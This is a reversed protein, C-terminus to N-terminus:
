EDDGLDEDGDVQLYEIPEAEEGVIGYHGDTTHIVLFREPEGTQDILRQVDDVDNTGSVMGDELDVVYM